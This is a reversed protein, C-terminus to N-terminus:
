EYIQVASSGAADECVSSHVDYVETFLYLKFERRACKLARQISCVSTEFQFWPPIDPSTWKAPCKRDFLVFTTRSLLYMHFICLQPTRPSPNPFVTSSFLPMYHLGNSILKYLLKIVNRSISELHNCNKCNQCFRMNILWSSLMVKTIFWCFICHIYLILTVCDLTSNSFLCSCLQATVWLVRFM